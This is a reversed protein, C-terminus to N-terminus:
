APYEGMFRAVYNREDVVAAAVISAGQGHAAQNRLQGVGQVRNMTHVPYLGARYLAGNYTNISGNGTWSIGRANCLVRLHDELVGGILVMAAVHYGADLLQEAQLMFDNHVNARLREELSTLWGSEVARRLALLVGLTAEVSAQERHSWAESAGRAYSRYFESERGAIRAIM